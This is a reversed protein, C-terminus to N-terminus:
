PRFVDGDDGFGPTVQGLADFNKNPTNVYNAPVRSLADELVSKDLRRSSMDVIQPECPFRLSEIYFYRDNSLEYVIFYYIIITDFM